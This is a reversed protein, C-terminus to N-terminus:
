WQLILMLFRLCDMGNQMAYAGFGNECSWEYKVLVSDRDSLTKLVIVKNLGSLEVLMDEKRESLFAGM